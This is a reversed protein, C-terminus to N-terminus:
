NGAPHAENMSMSFSFSRAGRIYEIWGNESGFPIIDQEMNISFNNCYALINHDKDLLIAQATGLDIKRDEIKDEVIENDKFSLM